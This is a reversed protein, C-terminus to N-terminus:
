TQVPAQGTSLFTLIDELLSDRDRYTVRIKKQSLCLASIYHRTVTQSFPKDPDDPLTEFSVNIVEEQTKGDEWLTHTLINSLNVIHKVNYNQKEPMAFQSSLIVTGDPSGHAEVVVKELTRYVKTRHLNDQNILKSYDPREVVYKYPYKPLDEEKYQGAQPPVTMFGADRLLISTIIEEIFKPENGLPSLTTM